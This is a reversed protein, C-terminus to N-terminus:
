QETGVNVSNTCFRTRQAIGEPRNKIFRMLRRPHTFPNKDFDPDLYKANHKETTENFYRM